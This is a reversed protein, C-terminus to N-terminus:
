ASALTSLVAYGAGRGALLAAVTIGLVFPLYPSRTGLVLDLALRAALAAIVAAFAACYRALASNPIRQLM